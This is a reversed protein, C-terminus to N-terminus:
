TTPPAEEPDAVSAAARAQRARQAELRARLGRYRGSDQGSRRPKPRAPHPKGTVAHFVDATMLSTLSWGPTTGLRASTTASEHPLHDVLVSLRRM